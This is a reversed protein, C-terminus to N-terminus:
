RRERESESLVSGLDAGEAPRSTRRGIWGLKRFILLQIITTAVILLWSWGYGQRWQLEPIHAFNQGYVGVILTPVLLLSAIITLRQIVDNQKQSIFGQHYDRVGSLLDSMLPITEVVRELDNKVDRMLLEIDSPFIRDRIDLREDDIAKLAALLPMIQRRADVLDRRLNSHRKHIRDTSAVGIARELEDIEDQLDNILDVYAQAVDEMLRYFMEGSSRGARNPCCELLIQPDFATGEYQKRVTVFTQETLIVDTEQYIVEDRERVLRPIPIVGFIYRGEVVEFRARLDRVDRGDESLRDVTREDLKTGALEKLRNIEEPHAPDHWRVVEVVDGETKM